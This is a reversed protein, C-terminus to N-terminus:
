LKEAVKFRPFKRALTHWFAKDMVLEDATYLCRLMYVVDQPFDITFRLYGGNKKDYVSSYKNARSKRKNDVNILFSKYASPHKAEWVRICEEIVPWPDSGSTEKLRELREVANLHAIQRPIGFQDYIVSAM